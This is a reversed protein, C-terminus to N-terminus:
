LAVRSMGVADNQLQLVKLVQYSQADYVTVTSGGAGAYLKKGDSSPMISFSTGEANPITKVVTNSELDVRVEDMMGYAKKKDPAYVFCYAMVPAGKIRRDEIKGTNADISLLGMFEPTYYNSLFINGNERTSPWIPLIDMHKALMPYTDVVKMEKQALDVTYLDLGVAYLTKGDKRYVLNSVGWPPTMSRLVHGDELDIQSITARVLVDGGDVKRDISNIYATKGDNALAFGWIMRKWGDSNTEITKVVKLTPIDIKLITHRQITAYLVTNDENWAMERVFGPVPIQGVIEDTDTDIVEILNYGQTFILDRAEARGVAAMLCLVLAFHILYKFNM